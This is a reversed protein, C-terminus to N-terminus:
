NLDAIRYVLQILLTLIGLTLILRSLINQIKKATQTQTNRSGNIHKADFYFFHVLRWSEKKDKFFSVFKILILCFLILPASLYLDVIFLFHPTM